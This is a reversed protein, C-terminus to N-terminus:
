LVNECAKGISVGGSWGTVCYTEVTAVLNSVQAYNGKGGLWTQTASYFSGKPTSFQFYDYFNTTYAWGQVFLTGSSPTWLYMCTNV